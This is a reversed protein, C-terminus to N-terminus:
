DTVGFDDSLDTLDKMAARRRAREHEVAREVLLPILRDRWTAVHVYGSSVGAQAFEERYVPEGAGPDDLDVGVVADFAQRLLREADTAEAPIPTADLRERMAAWVFPDGRLGWQRPEDAFLDGMTHPM